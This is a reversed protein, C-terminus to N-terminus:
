VAKPPPAPSDPIHSLYLSRYDGYRICHYDQIVSFSPMVPFYDKLLKKVPNQDGAQDRGSQDSQKEVDEEFMTFLNKEKLDTFCYYHITGGPNTQTKVVDYLNDNLRFEGPATWVLMKAEDSTVTIVIIDKDQDMHEKSKLLHYRHIDQRILFVPYFGVINYLFIILFLISFLKRLRTPGPTYKKGAYIGYVRERRLKRIVASSIEATRNIRAEQMDAKMM